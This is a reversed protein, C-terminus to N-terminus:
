EVIGYEGALEWLTESWPRVGFRSHLSLLRRLEQRITDGRTADQNHADLTELLRAWGHWFSEDYADQAELAAVGQRFRAFAEDDRGLRHLAEGEVIALRPDDHTQGERLGALVILAEDPSGAEVLAEALVARRLFEQTADLTTQKRLRCVEVLMSAMQALSGSDVARRLQVMKRRMQSSMADLWLHGLASGEHLRALELAEAERDLALLAEIAQADVRERFVDRQESAESADIAERAAACLGLLVEGETRRDAEPANQFVEHQMDALMVRAPAHADSGAGVRELLERRRAHDEVRVALALRWEDSLEDNPYVRLANELTRRAADSESTGLREALACAIRACRRADPWGSGSVFVDALLDMAEVRLAGRESEESAESRRVLAMALEWRADDIWPSGTDGVGTRLLEIAEDLRDQSSMAWARAVDVLLPRSEGTEIRTLFALMSERLALHDGEHRPRRRLSDYVECAVELVRANQDERMLESRTLLGEILLLTSTDNIPNGEDVFPWREVLDRTAGEIARADGAHITAMVASEIVLSPDEGGQARALEHARVLHEDADLGQLLEGYARLLALEARHREDMSVRGAVEEVILEGFTARTTPDKESAGLLAAGRAVAIPIRHELYSVLYESRHDQLRQSDRFDARRALEDARQPMLERAVALLRAANYAGFRVRELVGEDRTGLMVRADSLELRTEELLEFARNAQAVGTEDEITTEIPRDSGLQAESAGCLAFVIVLVWRM